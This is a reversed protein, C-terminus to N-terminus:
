SIFVRANYNGVCAYFQTTFILFVETTICGKAMVSVTGRHTKTLLLAYPLIIARM